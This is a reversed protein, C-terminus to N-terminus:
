NKSIGKVSFVEKLGISEKLSRTYYHPFAHAIIQTQSYTIIIIGNAKLKYTINM